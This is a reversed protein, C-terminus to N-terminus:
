PASLLQDLTLVPRESAMEEGTGKIRCPYVTHVRINKIV